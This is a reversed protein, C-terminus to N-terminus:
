RTAAEDFRIPRPFARGRTATEDVRVCLADARKRATELDGAYAAEREGPPPGLDELGSLLGIVPPPANM